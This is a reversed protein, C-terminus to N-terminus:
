YILSHLRLYSLFLVFVNKKIEERFAGILLGQKEIRNSGTQLLYCLKSMGGSYQANYVSFCMGKLLAELFIMKIICFLLSYLFPISM